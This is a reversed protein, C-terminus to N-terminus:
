VSSWGFPTEVRFGNGRAFDVLEYWFEPERILLGHICVYLPYEFRERNSDWPTTLATYSADGEDLFRITLRKAREQEQETYM